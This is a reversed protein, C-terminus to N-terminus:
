GIKVRPPIGLESRWPSIRSSSTCNKTNVDVKACIIIEARGSESVAPFIAVNINEIHKVKLPTKWGGNARGPNQINMYLTEGKVQLYGDRRAGQQEPELPRSIKFDQSVFSSRTEAMADVPREPRATRQEELSIATM